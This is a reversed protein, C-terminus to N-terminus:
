ARRAGRRRRSPAPPTGFDEPLVADAKLARVFREIEIEMNEHSLRKLDNVLVVMGRDLEDDFREVTEQDFVGTGSWECNPCRLTVKWHTASAEEWEIPYVLGCGCTGCRHLDRTSDSLAPPDVYVVEITKGSPLVVKRVHQRAKPSDAM